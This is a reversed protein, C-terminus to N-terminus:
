LKIPTQYQDTNLQQEYTWCQQVEGAPWPEDTWTWGDNTDIGYTTVRDATNKTAASPKQVGSTITASYDAAKAMALHYGYMGACDHLSGGM